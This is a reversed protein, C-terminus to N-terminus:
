PADRRVIELCAVKVVFCAAFFAAEGNRGLYASAALGGFSLGINFITFNKWTLHKM